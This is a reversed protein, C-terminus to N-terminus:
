NQPNWKLLHYTNELIGDSEKMKRGESFFFNRFVEVNRFIIYITSTFQSLHYVTTHVMHLGIYMRDINSVVLTPHNKVKIFFWNQILCAFSQTPEPEMCLQFWSDPESNSHKFFIEIETPFILSLESWTRGRDLSSGCDILNQNIEPWDSKNLFMYLRLELKLLVMFGIGPGTRQFLIYYFVIKNKNKFVLGLELKTRVSQFMCNKCVLVTNLFFAANIILSM